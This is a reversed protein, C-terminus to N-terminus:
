VPECHAIVSNVPEIGKKIKEEVETAIRHIESLKKEGDVNLHLSVAANPGVYHVRVNHVDKVGKVGKAIYTIQRLM